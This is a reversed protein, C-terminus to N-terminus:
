HAPPGAHDHSGTTSGSIPLGTADLTKPVEAAAGLGNKWALDATGEQWSKANFMQTGMEWFMGFPNFVKKVADVSADSTKHSDGHDATHGHGTEAGHAM